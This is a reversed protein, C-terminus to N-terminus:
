QLLRAEVDVSGFGTDLSVLLKHQAHQYNESILTRGMRIFGGLSELDVDGFGTDVSIQCGIPEKVMIKANISGFGTSVAVSADRRLEVVKLELSIAGFGTELSLDRIQATDAIKVDLGGFGTGATIEYALGPGLIVDIEATDASANVILTSGLVQYNFKTKLGKGTKFTIRCRISQDQTTDIHIAGMGTACYLRLTDVNPAESATITKVETKQLGVTPVLFGTSAVLFVLLGVTLAAASGVTASLGLAGFAILIIGAILLTLTVLQQISLYSLPAVGMIAMCGSVLFLIGGIIYLLAPGFDRAQEGAM